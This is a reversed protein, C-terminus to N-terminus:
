HLCEITVAVAGKIGFQKLINGVVDADCTFEVSEITCDTSSASEDKAPCMERLFEDRKFTPSKGKGRQLGAEKMAGAVYTYPAGMMLGLARASIGPWERDMAKLYAFKKERPYNQFEEYTIPTKTNFSIVDGSKEELEKDTYTPLGTKTIIHRDVGSAKVKNHEYLAGIADFRENRHDPGRNAEASGIPIKM